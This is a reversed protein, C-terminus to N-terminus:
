RGGVSTNTVNLFEDKFKLGVRLMDEIGVTQPCSQMVWDGVDFVLEGDVVTSNSTAVFCTYQANNIFINGCNLALMVFAALYIYRNRNAWYSPLDITYTNTFYSSAFGVIGDTLM